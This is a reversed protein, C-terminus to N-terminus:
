RASAGRSLPQDVEAHDASSEGVFSVDEAGTQRLIDRAKDMRDGNEFHVALLIGGETIRGAYRKSEYEPVGGGALAGSIGGAFWGSRVGVLTAMIPGASILPGVGPVALAGIGTLTGLRGGMVGGTVVSTATAEPGNSHRERASGKNPVNDQLLVSISEMNYGAGLLRDVAQEAGARNNYIGFVAPNKEAM